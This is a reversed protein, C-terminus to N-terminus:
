KPGPKLPARAASGAGSATPGAGLIIELVKDPDHRDIMARLFHRITEAEATGLGQLARNIRDTQLGALKAVLAEGKATAYLLRQRRDSDGSKQVIYDEDLLQKLVRGLSQKTIRLVDLLDAVKLGPYRTVFHVVRHHARGFGFARLVDDADGVFDRYAFFLLEIIDWRPDLGATTPHGDGPGGRPQPMDPTFNVDPM